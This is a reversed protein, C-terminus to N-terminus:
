DIEIECQEGLRIVSVTGAFLVGSGDRLEARAGIPPDLWFLRACEDSTDRLRVTVNAVTGDVRARLTGASELLAHHAEALDLLPLADANKYFQRPPAGEIRLWIMAADEGM